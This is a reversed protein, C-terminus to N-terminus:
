YTNFVSSLFEFQIQAWLRNVHRRKFLMRYCHTCAPNPDPDLQIRNRMTYNEHTYCGSEPGEDKRQISPYSFFPLPFGLYLRFVSLFQSHYHALDFKKQNGMRDKTKMNVELIFDIFICPNPSIGMIPKSLIWSSYFQCPSILNHAFFILM